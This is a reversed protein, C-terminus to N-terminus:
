LVPCVYCKYALTKVKANGINVSYQVVGLASSAKNCIDVHEGCRLDSTINVGLYKVHNVHKLHGYIYYTRYGKVICRGYRGSYQADHVAGRADLPVTHRHV